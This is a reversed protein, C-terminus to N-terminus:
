ENEIEEQLLKLLLAINEQKDTGKMLSKFDGKRDNLAEDQKKPLRILRKQVGKVFSTLELKLVDEKEVDIDEDSIETINDLDFIYQSFLSKFKSEDDDTFKDLSKHVVATAISNIWSERDDLPSNIRQLVVKLKTTLKEEKVNSFRKQLLMKNEPFSKDTEGISENIVMELRNLLASQAYSLERTAEKMIITFNEISKEEDLNVQLARPMEEFFVKKPDETDTLVARVRQAKGSVSKTQKAYPTLRKYFTLYPKITEIFTNADPTKEEALNLFYRYQNFLELSKGDLMFTNIYYKHPQKMAVDLIDATLEPIFKDEEYFAYEKQKSILFVPLWFEIFGSKLKYPRKKLLSIFDSLKRKSIACSELFKVSEKWLYTFSVDSPKDFCWQDGCRKYINTNEILSLYITKEPPYKDEPFDFHPAGFNELIQKVLKRKAGSITGSLKERNMLENKFVPTKHYVKDAIDSLTANLEKVEHFHLIEGQFCWKVLDKKGYFSSLILDNLEHKAIQQQNNLEGLAVADDPCKQKVIEIKEIDILKRRIEDSKIFYGYLIAKKSRKSHSLLKEESYKPNFILNIFGDVNGEPEVDYPKESVITQFYRPTGTEFYSRKALYIPFNFYDRLKNVVSLDYSVRDEALELESNIDFDTGKFLVYRSSYARYRIIQKSTLLQIIESANEIKLAHRAYVTLFDLNIQQGKRGFISLLGITKIIKKADNVNKDFAGDVRELSEDIARWQVAHPNFKSNLLSHFNYILYDFVHSLNYFEDGSAFDNLGLYDNSELFSFLSRENQGYAQFALTVTTASLIDFPFLKKAFEYNFYDKLPFANSNEISKFLEQQNKETVSPKIAKQEIRASALYLLQEVPENFTVEVLRGKVKEWEKKQARSLELSYDEFAQHLTTIFIIPTNPTNVFEALQQIFYIETDTNEKAAYELFKGFEDIVLLLGQKKRKYSAIKRKFQKFFDVDAEINLEKRLVKELSNYEGVVFLSDYKLELEPLKFYDAKGNLVKELAIIFASKGTGYAGVISFASVGTESANFIKNFAKEGNRTPVYNFDHERDRIINISPSFINTKM